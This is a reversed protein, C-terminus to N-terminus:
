WPSSVISPSASLLLPVKVQVQARARVWMLALVLALVLASGLVLVLVRVVLALMQVQVLVVVSALSLVQMGACRQFVLSVELDCASVRAHNQRVIEAATAAEVAARAPRM